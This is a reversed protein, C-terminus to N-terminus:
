RLFVLGAVGRKHGCPLKESSCAHRAGPDQGQFAMARMSAASWLSLRDAGALPKTAAEKPGKTTAWIRCPAVSGSGRQQYVSDQFLRLLRGRHGQGWARCCCPGHEKHTIACPCHWTTM